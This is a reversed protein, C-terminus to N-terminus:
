QTYLIACYTHKANLCTHVDLLGYLFLCSILCFWQVDLTDTDTVALLVVIAIVTVIAIVRVMILIVSYWYFLLM